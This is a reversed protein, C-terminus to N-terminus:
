RKWMEGFRKCARMFGHHDGWVFGAWGGFVLGVGWAFWVVWEPIM